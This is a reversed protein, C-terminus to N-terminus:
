AKEVVGVEQVAVAMILFAALSLGAGLLAHLTIGGVQHQWLWGGAISGAMRGAMM